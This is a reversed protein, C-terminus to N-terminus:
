NRLTITATLCAQDEVQWFVGYTRGEFTLGLVKDGLSTLKVEHFDLIRGVSASLAKYLAEKASFILTVFIEFPMGCPHHIFEDSSLIMGSLGEAREPEMIKEYDIGVSAYHKSVAAIACNNSHTISGTAGDPWIPARNVSEVLEPMELSRLAAAACIRGALYESRRRPVAATLHPPIKSRVEGLQPDCYVCEYEDLVEFTAQGWSLDTIPFPHQTHFSLILMTRRQEPVGYDIAM